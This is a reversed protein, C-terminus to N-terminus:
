FWGTYYHATKYKYYRKFPRKRDKFAARTFGEALQEQVTRFKAWQTLLGAGRICNQVRVELKTKCQLRFASDKESKSCLSATKLSCLFSM